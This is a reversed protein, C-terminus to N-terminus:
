GHQQDLAQDQSQFWGIAKKGFVYLLILIPIAVLALILMMEVSMAGRRDSHFRLLANKVKNLM